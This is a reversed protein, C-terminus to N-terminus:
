KIIVTVLQAIGIGVPVAAHISQYKIFIYARFRLNAHRIAHRFQDSPATDPVVLHCTDNQRFGHYFNSFNSKILTFIQGADRKRLSNHFNTVRGKRFTGLQRDNVYRISQLLRCPQRLVVHPKATGEAAGRRKRKGFAAVIETRAIELHTIEKVVLAVPVAQAQIFIQSRVRLDRHRFLHRLCTGRKLIAVRHRLHNKRRPKRFKFAIYKGAARRQLLNRNRLANRQNAIAREPVAFSQRLQRKRPSQLLDFAIHKDAARPKRVDVNRVAYLRNVAM